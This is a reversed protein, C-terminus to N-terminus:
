NANFLGLWRAIPNIGTLWHLALRLIPIKSLNQLHLSSPFFRCAIIVLVDNFVLYKKTSSM